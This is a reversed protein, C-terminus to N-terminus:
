DSLTYIWEPAVSYLTVIFAQQADAASMSGCDRWAKLQKYKKSLPDVVTQDEEGEEEDSPAPGDKASRYLGYL